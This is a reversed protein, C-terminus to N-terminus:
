GPELSRECRGLLSEVDPEALPKARDLRDLLALAVYPGLDAPPTAHRPKSSYGALFGETGARRIEEDGLLAVDALFGGLDLGPDGM